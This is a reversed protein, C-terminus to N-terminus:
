YPDLYNSKILALEQKTRERLEKAAADQVLKEIQGEVQEIKDNLTEIEEFHKEITRELRKKADNFSLLKIQSKELKIDINQSRKSM